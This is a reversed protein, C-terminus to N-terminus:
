PDLALPAHDGPAYKAWDTISVGTEVADRAVNEPFTPSARFMAVREIVRVMPHRPVFPHDPSGDAQEPFMALYAAIPDEDMSLTRPM